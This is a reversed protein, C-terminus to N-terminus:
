ELFTYLTTCCFVIIKFTILNGAPPGTEKSGLTTTLTLCQSVLVDSSICTNNQLM